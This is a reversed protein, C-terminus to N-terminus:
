LARLHTQMSAGAARRWTGEAETTNVAASRAGVATAGAEMCVAVAAKGLLGRFM